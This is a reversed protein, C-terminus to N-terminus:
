RKFCNITENAKRSYSLVSEGVSDDFANWAQWNSKKDLFFIYSYTLGNRHTEQRWSLWMHLLELLLTSFGKNSTDYVM